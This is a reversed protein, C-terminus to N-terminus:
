GYRTSLKRIHGHSRHPQANINSPAMRLYPHPARVHPCNQRVRRNERDTPSAKGMELPPLLETRSSLIQTTLSFLVLPLQLLSVHISARRSPRSADELSRCNSSGLVRRLLPLCLEHNRSQQRLTPQQLTRPIPLRIDSSDTTCFRLPLSRVYISLGLRKRKETEIWALWSADLQSRGSRQEPEIRASPRCDLLRSRRCATVLIGRGGEAFEYSHKSGSWTGALCLLFYTLINDVSRLQLFTLM